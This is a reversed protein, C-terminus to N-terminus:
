DGVQVSGKIRDSRFARYDDRDPDYGTFTVHDGVRKVDSPVFARWEITGGDGKAYRFSCEVGHAAAVRILAENLPIDSAKVAGAPPQERDSLAYIADAVAIASDEGLSAVSRGENDHDYSDTVALHIYKGSADNYVEVPDGYDDHAVIQSM